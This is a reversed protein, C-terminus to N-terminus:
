LHATTTTSVCGAAHFGARRLCPLRVELNDARNRDAYDGKHIVPIAADPRAAPM